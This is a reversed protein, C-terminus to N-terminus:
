KLNKREENIEEITGSFGSFPGDMVKITEGVIYRHERHKRGRRRSEDVKGFFEISKKKVACVPVPERM